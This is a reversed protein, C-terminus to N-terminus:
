LRTAEAGAAEPLPQALATYRAQERPSLPRKITQRLKRTKEFHTAAASYERMKCALEAQFLRASTTLVVDQRAEYQALALDSFALATVYDGEDGAIQALVLQPDPLYYSDGLADFIRLSTQALQKATALEGMERLADALNHMVFAQAWGEPQPMVLEYARQLWSRSQEFDLMDLAIIGKHAWAQMPDALPDAAISEDLWNLAQSYDGMIYATLGMNHLVTATGAADGLQHRLDLGERHYALSAAYEDLALHIAGLGNLATARAPLDPTSLQLAAQLM